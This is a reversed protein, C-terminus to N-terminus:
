FHKLLGLYSQVMQAQKGKSTNPKFVCERFNREIRKGLKLYNPYIYAGLFSFGKSAPQLRIKKPHLTLKLNERMFERIRSIAGLLIQKDDCIL